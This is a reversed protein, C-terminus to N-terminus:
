RCFELNVQRPRSTSHLNKSPKDNYRAEYLGSNLNVRYTGKIVKVRTVTKGRSDKVEFEDVPKDNCTATGYVVAAVAMGPLMFLLLHIALLGQIFSRCPKM